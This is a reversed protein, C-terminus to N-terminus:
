KQPYFGTCLDHHFGKTFAMWKEHDQYPNYVSFTGIVLAACAAVAVYKRVPTRRKVPQALKESLAARVEPSPTMQKRMSDFLEKNM